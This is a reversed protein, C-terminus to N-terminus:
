AKKPRGTKIAPVAKLAALFSKDSMEALTKIGARLVESKKSPHALKAARQKLQDLAAREDKPLTFSDRVLKVKKQKAPKGSAVHSVVADTSKKAPPTKAASKRGAITKSTAPKPSPTVRKNAPKLTSEEM